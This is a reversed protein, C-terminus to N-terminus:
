EGGGLLELYEEVQCEECVEMLHEEGRCVCPYKCLNDCIYEQLERRLDSM